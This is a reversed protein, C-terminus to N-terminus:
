FSSDNFLKTPGASWTNTAPDYIYTQPGAKSGALVKGNPLLMTPDDGFMSEPFPAINTWTNTVPNYIEGTNTYTTDLNPGSLKGGLVLVRGDPLVNTADLVRALNMSALQSWTGHAYSGTADPTLKYINNPSDSTFVMVSGDTLLEM